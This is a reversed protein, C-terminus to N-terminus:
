SDACFRKRIEEMADVGLPKGISKKMQEQLYRRLYEEVDLGDFGYNSNIVDSIHLKKDTNNLETRKSDKDM